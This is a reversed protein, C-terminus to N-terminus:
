MYVCQYIRQTANTPPSPAYETYQLSCLYLTPNLIYRIFRLYFSNELERKMGLLTSAILSETERIVPCYMSCVFPMAWSPMSADIDQSTLLITVM